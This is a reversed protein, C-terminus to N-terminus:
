LKHAGILLDLPDPIGDSDVDGPPAVQGRALVEIRDAALLPSVCCGGCGNVWCAEVANRFLEGAQECGKGAGKNRWWIM